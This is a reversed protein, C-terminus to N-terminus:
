VSNEDFSAKKQEFHPELYETWFEDLNSKKKEKRSNRYVIEILDLTNNDITAYDLGKNPVLKSIDRILTNANLLTSINSTIYKSELKLGTDSMLTLDGLREFLYCYNRFQKGIKPNKNLGNSIKSLIAILLYMSLERAPVQVDPIIGGFRMECKTLDITIKSIAESAQYMAFDMLTKAFGKIVLPKEVSISCSANVNHALVLIDDTLEDVFRVFSGEIPLCIFDDYSKSRGGLHNTEVKSKGIKILIYPEKMEPLPTDNFITKIFNTETIKSVSKRVLDIRSKKTWEESETELVFISPYVFSLLSEIVSDKSLLARRTDSITVYKYDFLNLRTSIHSIEVNSMEEININDEHSIYILENKAFRYRENKNSFAFTSPKRLIYNLIICLKAETVDCNGDCRSLAEIAGIFNKTLFIKYKPSIKDDAYYESMKAETGFFKMEDMRLTKFTMLADSLTLSQSDLIDRPSLDFRYLRSDLNGIIHTTASYPQSYAEFYHLEENDIIADAMIIERIIRIAARKFKAKNKQSIKYPTKM